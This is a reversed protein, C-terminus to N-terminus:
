KESDSLEISSTEAADTDHTQELEEANLDPQPTDLGSIIWELVNGQRYTLV